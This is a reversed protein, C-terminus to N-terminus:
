RRRQLKPRAASGKYKQFILGLFGLFAAAGAAGIFPVATATAPPPNEDISRLYATLHIAEQPTVKHDRYAASMVKFNGQECASQLAMEGLKAYVHTLDPGMNGGGDGIAHCSACSVGGNAFALEGHFLQEGTGTSPKEMNSKQKVAVSKTASELRTAANTDHLLEVLSKVQADEMPGAYKEMRRVAAELESDPWAAAGALNPGTRKAGSISHCAACSKNFFEAGMDSGSTAVSALAGDAESASSSNDAAIPKQAIVWNSNTTEDAKAEPQATKAEATAQKGGEEEADLLREMFLPDHLLEVLADIEKQELKQTYRQMRLVASELSATSNSSTNQLDSGIIAGSHCSICKHHFLGAAYDSDLAPDAPNATVTQTTVSLVAIFVSAFAPLIRRCTARTMKNVLPSVSKM